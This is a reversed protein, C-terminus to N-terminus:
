FSPFILGIQRIFAANDEAFYYIIGAMVMCKIGLTKLEKYRDNSWHTEACKEAFSQTFGYCFSRTPVRCMEFFKELTFNKLDWVTFKLVGPLHLQYQGFQLTLGEPHATINLAKFSRFSLQSLDITDKDPTFDTITVNRASPTIVVTDHGGGTTITLSGTVTIIDDGAGTIIKIVESGPAINFFQFGVQYLREPLNGIDVSAVYQHTDIINGEGSIGKIPVWPRSGQGLLRGGNFSHVLERVFHNGRRGYKAQLAVVDWPMLTIPILDVVRGGLTRKEMEKAMISNTITSNLYPPRDTSDGVRVPHKLGLTHCIEHLLATGRANDAQIDDAISRGIMVIFMSPGTKVSPFPVTQFWAGGTARLYEVTGFFIGHKQWHAEALITALNDERQFAIPVTQSVQALLEMVVSMQAPTLPHLSKFGLQNLVDMPVPYPQPSVSIVNDGSFAPKWAIGWDLAQVTIPASEDQPTKVLKM